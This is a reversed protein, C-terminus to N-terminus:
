GTGKRSRGSGARCLPRRAAGGRVRHRRTLLVREEVLHVEVRLVLLVHAVVRTGGRPIRRRPAGRAERADSPPRDRREGGARTGGGARGRRPGEERRGGAAGLERDRGAADHAREAVLVVELAEEARVLHDGRIGGLRASTASASADDRAERPGGVSGREGDRRQASVDADDGADAREHVM